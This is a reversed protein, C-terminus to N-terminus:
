PWALGRRIVLGRWPKVRESAWSELGHGLVPRLAGNYLRMLTRPDDPRYTPDLMRAVLHLEVGVFAVLDAATRAVPYVHDVALNPDADVRELFRDASVTFRDLATTADLGAVEHEIAESAADLQATDGGTAADLLAENALLLAAVRRIVDLHTDPLLGDPTDPTPRRRARRPVHRRVETDLTDAEITRRALTVVAARGARYADSASSM